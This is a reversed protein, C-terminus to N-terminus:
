SEYGLHPAASRAGVQQALAAVQDHTLYRKGTQVVRPLKLREAPNAPSGATRSRSSCRARCCM